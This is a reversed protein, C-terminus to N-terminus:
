LKKVYDSIKVFEEITVQDPRSTPSISLKEFDEDKLWAKLANKLTKRRAMFAHNVLTDFLKTDKIPTPFSRPSLQVFMSEVKPPPSFAQPPILFLPTVECYYQVHISLRGYAKSGPEAALREVVEKQLMFFMSHILHIEKFLHFLLPTSIQYPLNGCLHIPLATISALSFKLIDGEHIKTNPLSLNQLISIMRSDLEVIDLHKVLPAIEQTLVGQGPGIELWHQNPQPHLTQIIEEIVGPDNLFHQGLHKFPIISM